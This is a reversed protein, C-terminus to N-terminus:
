EDAHYVVPDSENHTLFTRLSFDAVDLLGVSATLLEVILEEQKVAGVELM